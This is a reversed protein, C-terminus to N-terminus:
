GGSVIDVGEALIPWVSLLFMAAMIIWFGIRKM